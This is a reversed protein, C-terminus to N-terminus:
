AYTRRRGQRMDTTFAKIVEYEALLTHLAAHTENADSKVDILLQLPPQTSSYLWGGNAQALDRLPDLYETRLTRETRIKSTDHTVYLSGDRLAVDVEISAVGRELADFLPRSREFDNHAHTGPLRTGVVAERPTGRATEPGSGPAACGYAAICLVLLSAPRSM